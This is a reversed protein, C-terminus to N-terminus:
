VTYDVYAKIADRIEQSVMYDMDALWLPILEAKGFKRKLDDWKKSDSGTREKYMLM